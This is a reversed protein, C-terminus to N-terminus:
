TVEDEDTLQARLQQIGEPTDLADALAMVASRPVVLGLLPAGVQLVGAGLPGLPEILDLATSAAGALGRARLSEIWANLAAQGDM